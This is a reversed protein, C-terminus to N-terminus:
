CIGHLEKLLNKNINKINFENEDYHSGFWEVNEEYDENKTNM